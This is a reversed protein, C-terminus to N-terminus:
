NVRNHNRAEVTVIFLIGQLFGVEFQGERQVILVARLSEVTCPVEVPGDEILRLICVIGISIFGQWEMLAGLLVDGLEVRDDLPILGNELLPHLAAQETHLAQAWVHFNPPDLLTCHELLNGNVERRAVLLM